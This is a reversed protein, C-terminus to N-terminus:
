CRRPPAARDLKHSIFNGAADKFKIDVNTDPSGNILLMVRSQKLKGKQSETPHDSGVKNIISSVDRGSVEIIEWGQAIGATFAPSDLEVKTVLARGDIM